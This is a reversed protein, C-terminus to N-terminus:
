IASSVDCVGAVTDNGDFLLHALGIGYGRVGLMVKWFIIM